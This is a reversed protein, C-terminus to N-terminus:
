LIDACLVVVRGSHYPCILPSSPDTVPIYKGEKTVKWNWRGDEGAIHNVIFKWSSEAKKYLAEDGSLKWGYILGTVSESEEWWMKDTDVSGDPYGRDFVGGNEVDYGEDAIHRAIKVATEKALALINDDNVRKAGLLIMWECEADDAYRDSLDATPEWSNTLSQYLGGNSRTWVLSLKEIIGSLAGRLKDSDWVKCLNGYAECLHLYTDVELIGEVPEFSRSSATRYARIANDFQKEEILGFIEKARDLAEHVGFTEFYESLGYIMYSQTYTKKIDSIIEGSTNLAEFVGGYEKDIFNNCIDAYAIDAMEKWEPKNFIKYAASFTWLVRATLVASRKGSQLPKNDCGLTLIIQKDRDVGTRVWYDLNAQLCNLMQEKMNM